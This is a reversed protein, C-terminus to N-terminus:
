VKYNVFIYPEKRNIHNGRGGKFYDIKDIVERLITNTKKMDLDDSSLVEIIKERTNNLKM